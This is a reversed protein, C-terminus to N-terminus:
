RRYFSSSWTDICRHRDALASCSKRGTKRVVYAGKGLLPVSELLLLMRATFLNEYDDEATGLKTLMEDITHVTLFKGDDSFDPLGEDRIVDILASKLRISDLNTLARKGNTEHSLIFADLDSHRSADGRAMSGTAYVVGAAGLIQEAGRKKLSARVADLRVRSFSRREELVPGLDVSM